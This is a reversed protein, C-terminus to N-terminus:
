TAGTCLYISLFIAEFFFAFTDMFLPLAIVHGGMQMFTQWLLSSQVGIITGTVVRVSVTITYGNSWRKAITIYHPDNKKIGLFAAIAFMLTVGVGIRAFIIHVALTMATLFRALEDSDM